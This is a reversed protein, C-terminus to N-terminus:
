NAQYPLGNPNVAGCIKAANVLAESQESRNAADSFSGCRGPWAMRGGSRFKERGNFLPVRHMFKEQCDRQQRYRNRTGDGLLLLLLAAACRFLLPGAVAVNLAVAACDDVLSIEAHQSAKLLIAGFQGRCTSLHQRVVPLLMVRM